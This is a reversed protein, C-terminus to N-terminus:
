VKTVRVNDLYIQSGVAKGGTIDISGAVFVFRYTGTQGDRITYEVKTWPKSVGSENLIVVSRCGGIDNLLYVFIEYNEQVYFSYPKNEAKYHFSVKDGPSLQVYSDSVMYPGRIKKFPQTTSGLSYFFAGTLGPEGPINSPEFGFDMVVLAGSDDGSDTGPRTSGDVNPTNCGAILGLGNLRTLYQYVRWGPFIILGGSETYPTKNEFRENVWSNGIPLGIPGISPTPTPTFIGFPNNCNYNFTYNDLDPSKPRTARSFSLSFNEPGTYNGYQVRMSYYVGATLIISATKEISTHQGGNAILANTTTFTTVANAGIWLYSADDSDLYFTYNDTVDPRFLGVWQVSYGVGSTGILLAGTNVSKNTPTVAAFYTVDDSFYGNHISRCLGNDYPVLSPTSTPTPTPTPLPPISLLPSFAQGNVCGHLIVIPHTNPPPSSFIIQYNNVTFAIGPNQFVNHIFVLLFIENGIPYPYAMPGFVTQAGNGYFTDKIPVDIENSSIGRWKELAFYEPRYRNYNYRILGEVPANPGITNSGIPLRISYSGSTLERNKIFRGM